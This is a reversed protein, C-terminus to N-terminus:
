YRIRQIGSAMIRNTRKNQMRAIDILTTETSAAEFDFGVGL